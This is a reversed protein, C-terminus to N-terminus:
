KCYSKSYKYYVFFLPGIFIALLFGLVKQETSGSKKICYLSWFFAIIGLATWAFIFIAVVQLTSTTQLANSTNTTNTTDNTTSTNDNNIWKQRVTQNETERYNTTWMRKDTDHKQSEPNSDLAKQSEANSM